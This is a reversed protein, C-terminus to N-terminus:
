FKIRILDDFNEIFKIKLNYSQNIIPIKFKVSYNM